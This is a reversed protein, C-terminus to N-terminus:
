TVDVLDVVHMIKAAAKAKVLEAVLMADAEAWFENMRQALKKDVCCNYDQETPLAYTHEELLDEVKNRLIEVEAKSFKL